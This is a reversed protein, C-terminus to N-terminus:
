NNQSVKKITYIHGSDTNSNLIECLKEAETKYDFELVESQSDILVVPLMKGTKKNKMHKIIIYM